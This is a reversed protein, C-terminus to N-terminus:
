AVVHRIEKRIKEGAAEIGNTIDIYVLGSLDSPLELPGKHLLLVRGSERGLTGLFYGMEFIVNQRARRRTDNSTNATAGVDDPTLLVFVLASTAAYDEFKEIITRGLSPQEHLIVPEPLHLTNQIYNKLELKVEDAHGHVIFPCTTALDQRIGLVDYVRSVMERIPHSEWKSIFITAPDDKLADIIGADQTASLAIVPLKPCQKRIEGLLKMGSALPVTSAGLATSEPGPMLIDLVVVDATIINDIESLGQVASSVRCAEHGRYRFADALLEMAADDDIIIIKAMTHNASYAWKLVTDLYKSLVGGTPKTAIGRSGLDRPHRWDGAQKKHFKLFRVMWEWYATETRPSLHKFRAVEHFQDKLRGKPNPLLAGLPAPATKAPIPQRDM